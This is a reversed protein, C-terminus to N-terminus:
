STGAEPQFSEDMVAAAICLMERLVLEAPKFRAQKRTASILTSVLSATEPTAALDGLQRELEGWTFDPFVTDTTTMVPWTERFRSVEAQTWQAYRRDARAWDARLIAGVNKRDSM